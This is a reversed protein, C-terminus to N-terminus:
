FSCCVVIANFVYEAIISNRIGKYHMEDNKSAIDKKIQNVVKEHFHDCFYIVVDGQRDQNFWPHCIAMTTKGSGSEGAIVVNQELFTLNGVNTKPTIYEEVATVHREEIIRRTKDDVTKVRVGYFGKLLPANDVPADKLISNIASIVTDKGFGRFALNLTTLVLIMYECESNGVM